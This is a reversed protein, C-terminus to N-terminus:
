DPLYNLKDIDPLGPKSHNSSEFSDCFSQWQLINDGFKPIELKPLRVKANFHQVPVAEAQINRGLVNGKADNDNQKLELERLHRENELKRRQLEQEFQAHQNAAEQKMIELKSQSEM